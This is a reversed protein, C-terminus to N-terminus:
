QMSGISKPKTTKLNCCTNNIDDPIASCADFHFQHMDIVTLYIHCVSKPYCMDREDCYRPHMYTCYICLIGLKGTYFTQAEKSNRSALDYETANFVGEFHIHFYFQREQLIGINRNM